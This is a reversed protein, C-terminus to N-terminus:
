YGIAKFFGERIETKLSNRSLGGNKYSLEGSMGTFKFQWTSSPNNLLLALEYSDYGFAFYRNRKKPLNRLYPLEPNFMWPLDIVSVRELDLEKDLYFDQDNWNPLLYVSISEGFNYELEPKLSRAGRLSASMIITDVDMRRRPNSELPLSLARSLKRSREKSNEILLINSLLNQNSKNSSTFTGLVNGDLELWIENLIEKDSTGKEDIILANSSGNSRAYKLLNEFEFRKNIDLVPQVKKNLNPYNTSNILVAKLKLIKNLCSSDLRKLFMETLFIISYGESDKDFYCSKKDLEEITLFNINPSYNIQEKFYYYNTLFGYIFEKEKVDLTNLLFINISKPLKKVDYTFEPKDISIVKNLDFTNNPINSACSVFLTLNLFIILFKNLYNM